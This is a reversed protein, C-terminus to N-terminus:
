KVVKKGGVIYIGKPLANSWANAVRVGSLSYVAKNASQQVAVQGIGSQIPEGIVVVINMNLMAIHITASMDTDTLEGDLKIPVPGLMPGIWQETMVGEMNGPLIEINTDTSIKNAKEGKVMKVGKLDITGVYMSDAGPEPSPLLFNPLVFDCTGNDNTTVSLTSTAEPFSVENLTVVIKETYQKQAMAAFAAFCLSLTLLFKKM